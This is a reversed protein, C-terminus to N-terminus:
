GKNENAVEKPALVSAPLIYCDKKALVEVDGNDEREGYFYESERADFNHPLFSAESLISLREEKASNEAITKLEETPLVSCGGIQLVTNMDRLLHGEMGIREREQEAGEAMGRAFAEDRTDILNNFEVINKREQENMSEAVGEAYKAALLSDLDSTYVICIDATAFVVNGWPVQVDSQIQDNPKYRRVKERLEGVKTM